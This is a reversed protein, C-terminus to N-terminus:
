KSGLISLLQELGTNMGNDHGTGSTGASTATCRHNFLDLTGTDGHHMHARDSRDGHRHAGVSDNGGDSDGVGQAVGGEGM